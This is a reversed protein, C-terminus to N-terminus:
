NGFPLRTIVFGEQKLLNLVGEDGPLHAAGAGVFINGSVADSTLLEAWDRNRSTLLKDEFWAFSEAADPGGGDLSVKRSFEWVLAIEQALYRQRLTYAMDDPDGEWGLFLRIAELQEEQPLDDLLTLITVADELSESPAGAKAAYDGIRKDIGASQMAGAQAECPGIGLMMSAWIPKFKAVMFSPFGRRALEDSLKQWDEEGLLDPLTPGSTIFMISPDSALREELAKQDANSVELFVRDAADIHPKLQELHSDTMPHQFHYTGFLTIRTQGRVAHWLLGEPYPQAEAARELSEREAADMAAIMDTGICRQATAAGPLLILLSILHFLTKM